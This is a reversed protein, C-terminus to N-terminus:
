IAVRVYQKLSRAFEAGWAEPDDAGNITMYNNVTVGQGLMQKLKEEGILLEPQAADGVGIITPKTFLAGYEAAKAYWSTYITPVSGTQANFSGAMSFHPVAIHQSFSFHTSAFMSRLRSIGASAVSIAGNIATSMAAALNLSRFANGVANLATTSSTGFQTMSQAASTVGTQLNRFESTLRQVDSSAKGAEGAAKTIDGVGAAVAGLTVGLDLAGTNNVLDMVAGALMEFGEGAKLASDGISDFVGALSDLVGSVGGSITEYVNAIGDTITTIIGSVSEGVTTVISNIEESHSLVCETLQTIADIILMMGASALAMGASIMVFTAGFALMGVAGATLGPGVLSAVAMLAGIAVVMGGLVAIAVGGADAIQIAANVLVQMAQATIYLAAAAAILKLAQGAFAGFSGAASAVPGAATSAASGLGGIHGIIGGIGKGIKALGGIVKGGILLLPGVLAAIGAAKVIFNQMEPSLGNWAEAMETIGQSLSDILQRLSPGASVVLDFGAQKLGNMTKTFEDMPGVTKDFTETVSGTFDGLSGTLDEVSLRGTAFADYIAAGARTGFMEFAAARKDSESVESDMTKQFEQLYENLSVGEETAGKMAIKLGMMATNLNVGGLSMNMLFSAGEEVGMNMDKLQAANNMLIDALGGVDEGTKQGVVNLMNLVDGAETTEMNFAAMMKSVSDISSSVDQNNLKAFKIFQRSLYELDQGALNYRTRVEGIAAGATVFDTPMTTAIRTMIDQMEGLAEGSEGTKAVITDLGTDVERWSKAAAAGIATIPGTVAKTMTGGADTLGKGLSEGMSTGAATGAASGAPEAAETLQETLLAQAGELVPTVSITAQAVEPM